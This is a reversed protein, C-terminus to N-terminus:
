VCSQASRKREVPGTHIGMLAFTHRPGCRQRTRKGEERGLGRSDRSSARPHCSLVTQEARTHPCLLARTLVTRHTELERAANERACLFSVFSSCSFFSSFSSSSSFFYLLLLLLVFLLLVVILLVLGDLRLEGHVRAPQWVATKSSATCSPFVSETQEDSVVWRLAPDANWCEKILNEFRDDMGDPLSPRWGAQKTMQVITEWSSIRNGEDDKLRDWYPPRLTALESMVIAFSFVDAGTGYHKGELVEPATYGNTGVATMTRNHAMARAEGLDQRTALRFRRNMHTNRTVEVNEKGGNWNLSVAVRPEFQATLLINESKIDRHLIPAPSRSHLYDLALACGVLVKFVRKVAMHGDVRAREIADKLTGGDCFDMVILLAPNLCYGKFSVINGHEIRALMVVERGFNKFGEKDILGARM